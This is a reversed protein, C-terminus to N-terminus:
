YGISIEDGPKNGGIADVLEELGDVATGNISKIMDGSQLGAESAPSAEDVKTVLVGTEETRELHVGLFGRNSQDAKYVHIEDVEVNEDGEIIKEIEEDTFKGKHITKTETVEGNPQTVKEIVIIEVEEPEPSTGEETNQSFGATSVLLMLALLSISHLLKAM